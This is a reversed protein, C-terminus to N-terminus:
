FLVVTRVEKVETRAGEYEIGIEYFDAEVKCQRSKIVVETNLYSCNLCVPNKLQWNTMMVMVMMMMMMVVMVVVLM